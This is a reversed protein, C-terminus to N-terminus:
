FAEESSAKGQAKTDAQLRHVRLRPRMIYSLVRQPAIQLQTMCHGLLVVGSASMNETAGDTRSGFDHLESALRLERRTSKNPTPTESKVAPTRTEDYMPM